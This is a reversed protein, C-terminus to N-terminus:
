EVTINGITTWAGENGAGDLPQVRLIYRGPGLPPSKIEPVSTYWESRGNLDTGMYVRYGSVGAGSDEAAPWRILTPTEPELDLTTTLPTPSTPPTVDYGIPGFTTLVQSGDLGWVRVHLTHKGEGMDSLRAYGATARPFMPSEGGPDANWKQSFGSAAATYFDIQHDENHWQGAEVPVEFNVSPPENAYPAAVMVKGGHQNCGGIEPLVYGEAFSLPVSQRGAASPGHGTFATFHLHPIGPSGRDGVTGIVAGRPIFQGRATTVVSAMHTYMTYFGGGHNLILTGSGSVWVFVTGDAAARVPAHYTPGNVAVLDLSYRDWANHTGCAYGQIIRWPEGPPTPLILQPQAQVPRPALVPLLTCLVFLLTVLIRARAASQRVNGRTHTRPM